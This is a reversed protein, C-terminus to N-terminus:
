AGAPVSWRLRTGGRAGTGAEFRGGHARARQAMNDLGSSRTKGGPLGRGDDSVDITVEDEVEIRVTVESAGAHRVVNSLAERVVAVVDAAVPGRLSDLDGLVAVEPRFGLATVAQEVVAGVEEQLSGGGATWAGFISRRLDDITTDVEALATVIADGLTPDAALEATAALDHRSATLRRTVHDILDRRIREQDDLLQLREHDHRASALELAVSAQAALQQSLALEEPGPTSPNGPGFVVVVVGRVGRTTALPTAIVARAVAFREPDSDVIRRVRQDEADHLEPLLLPEGTRLVLDTLTDHRRYAKTVDIPDGALVGVELTEDDGEDLLVWAQDARCLDRLTDAILRYAAGPVPDALISTTVAAAARLWQEQREARLTLEAHEAAVGGISALKELRAEAAQVDALYGSGWVALVAYVQDEVLVPVGIWRKARRLERWRRSRQTAVIDVVRRPRTGRTWEVTLERRGLRWEARCSLAADSAPFAVAGDCPITEAATTVLRRLVEHASLDGAIDVMRSVLDLDVENPGAEAHARRSDSMM